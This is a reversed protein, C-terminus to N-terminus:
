PIFAYRLYQIRTPPHQPPCYLLGIQFQYPGHSFIGVQWFHHNRGFLICSSEGSVKQHRLLTTSTARCCVWGAPNKDVANQWKKILIPTEWFQPIVNDSIVVIEGFVNGMEVNFPIMGNFLLTFVNGSLWPNTFKMTSCWGVINFIGTPDCLATASTEFMPFRYSLNTTTFWPHCLSDM